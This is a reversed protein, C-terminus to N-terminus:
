DDSPPPGLHTVIEQVQATTYLRVNVLAGIKELIPKLWKRMTPRSVNYFYALQTKNYPRIKFTMKIKIKKIKM